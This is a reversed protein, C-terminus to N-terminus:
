DNEWCRKLRSIECLSFDHKIRYKYGYEFSYKGIKEKQNKTLANKLGFQKTSFIMSRLFRDLDSLLTSNCLSTDNSRLLPYNFYIGGLLSGQDSFQSDKIKYNGTIFKIRDDLLAYNKNRRFDLISKVIRTKIKKIKNPAIEVKLDQSNLIDSFTFQYGLYSFTNANGNLRPKSRSITKEDNFSLDDPLLEKLKSIIPGSEEYSFIIIDDVYRAYFYVSKVKRAERDFKRLKYEALSSSISLGRPLGISSTFVPTNFVDCLIKKSRYSLLHDNSIECLLEDRNVSEYFKKIDLKTVYFPCTDQLLVSVQDVILNRDAQKIKYLRKFNKNITKLLIHDAFDNQIYIDFNRKKLKQIHGRQVNGQRLTELKRELLQTASVSKDEINYRILDRLTVQKLLSELSLTQNLLM